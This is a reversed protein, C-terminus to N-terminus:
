PNVDTTWRRDTLIQLSRGTGEELCGDFSEDRKKSLESKYRRGKFSAKQIEYKLKKKM